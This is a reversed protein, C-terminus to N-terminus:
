LRATKDLTLMPSMPSPGSMASERGEGDMAYFSPASLFV